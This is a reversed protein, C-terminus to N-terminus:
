RWIENMLQVFPFRREPAYIVRPIHEIFDDATVYDFYRDPFPIPETTLDAYKINKEENARIDIGFVRRARFPNHPETGCGIDLSSSDTLCRSVSDYQSIFQEIDSARPLNGLAAVDRAVRVIRYIQKLKRIM